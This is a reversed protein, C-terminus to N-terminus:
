VGGTFRYGVWPETQILRPREPDEEIKRRLSGIQVRLADNTAGGAGWVTAILHGHTWVIGPRSLFANLIAYETPTLRHEVGGREVRRAGLDIALDGFRVVEPTDAAAPRRRLLMRVRALFEALGFPKVIYDDAGADLVRVKEREEGRVTLFLVPVSSKPRLSRLVALGDKRPMAFDTVVLDFASEAFLELAEEGDSATVVEHGERALADRVGERITVDDDVVLIRSV